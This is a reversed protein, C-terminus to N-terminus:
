GKPELKSSLIDLRKIEPIDVFLDPSQQILTVVAKGVLHMDRAVTDSFASFIAFSNRDFRLAYWTRTDPETEVLPLLSQLFEAADEERGPQAELPIYLALKAM